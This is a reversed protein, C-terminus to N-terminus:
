PIRGVSILSLRADASFEPNLFRAPDLIVRGTMVSAIDDVTLKRFEPCATAVVLADAGVAASRADAGLAIATRLDAPLATVHPDFAQVRAGDRVLARILEISPSRRLASTGPKYALGLVGITRGALPQLARRLQRLAWQGHARNSAFIGDMVPLTLDHEHALTRLFNVDRALTGGAFAPGARVYASPGVRPDSRLGLEVESADAGVHECIIALENAFTVSAALFSNLGHKVMEASEVSMWILTQCFKRMLPELIARTRENRVGVVIRGPNQFVDIARGLRLNEPSCAFAVTRASQAAFSRELSAVSGVPLQASVLVVTGDKLHAFLLEVQKRVSDVNARDDDDVPTDHCVWVVDADAASAVDSSFRLTGAAIGSRLLEALGPEHLPPEGAALRTIREHDLDIGVTTVNAAATCAATVSGLHWLGFVALKM